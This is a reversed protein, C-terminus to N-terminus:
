AVPSRSDLLLASLAFHEPQLDLLDPLLRPLHVLGHVPHLLSDEVRRGGNRCDPLLSVSEPILDIQYSVYVYEIM